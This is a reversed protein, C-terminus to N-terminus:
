QDRLYVVVTSILVVALWLLFAKWMKQRTSQMDSLPAPTAVSQVPLAPDTAPNRRGLRIAAVIQVITLPLGYFISMFLVSRAQNSAQASATVLAIYAGGSTAAFVIATHWRFLASRFYGTRRAIMPWKQVLMEGGLGSLFYCGAAGAFLWFLWQAFWSPQIGETNAIASTWIGLFVGIVIWHLRKSPPGFLNM